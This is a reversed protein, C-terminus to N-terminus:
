SGSLDIKTGLMLARAGDILRDGYSLTFELERNPFWSLVGSGFVGEHDKRSESRKNVKFAM